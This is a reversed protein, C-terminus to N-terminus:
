IMNKRTSRLDADDSISKHLKQSQSIVEEIPLDEDDSPIVPEMDKGAQWPILVERGYMLMFPSYGTSDKTWARYVFLMSELKEAWSMDHENIFDDFEQTKLFM